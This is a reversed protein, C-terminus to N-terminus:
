RGYCINFYEKIAEPDREKVEEIYDEPLYTECECGDWRVLRLYLNFVTEYSLGAPVGKQALYEWAGVDSKEIEQQLKAFWYDEDYNM